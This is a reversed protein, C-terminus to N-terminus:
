FISIKVSKKKYLNMSYPLDCFIVIIGRFFRRMVGSFGDFNRELAKEFWFWIKFPFCKLMTIKFLFVLGLEITDNGNWDSTLVKIDGLPISIKSLEMNQGTSIIEIIVYCLMVYFCLGKSRGHKSLQGAQITVSFCLSFSFFCKQM